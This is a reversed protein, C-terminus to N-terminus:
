TPVLTGLLFRSPRSVKAVGAFVLAALLSIGFARVGYASYLLVSLLVAPKLKLDNQELKAYTGQMALLAGFSFMLYPFESLVYQRYDWFLPNCAILLLVCAMLAVSLEQRLYVALVCLFVVFCAVTLIKFARLNLGTIKHVSALMM